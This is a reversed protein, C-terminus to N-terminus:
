LPASSRRLGRARIPRCYANKNDPGSNHFWKRKHRADYRRNISAASYGVGASMSPRATHAVRGSRTCADRKVNKTDRMQKALGSM